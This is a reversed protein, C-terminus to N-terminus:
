LRLLSRTVTVGIGTGIAYGIVGWLTAAVTFSVLGLQGCFAAATAPGGIAANSAVLVHDLRLSPCFTHRLFLSGMFVVLSHVILALMSFLLCAPGSSLAQGLNASIGIAAFLLQFAWSSLRKAVAQMDKWLPLNSLPVRILSTLVCIIGCATGPIISALKAEMHNSVQVITLAIIVLLASASLTRRPEELVISTGQIAKFQGGLPNEQPNKDDDKWFLQNLKRWKICSSLAVLYIAMILLDVAAMSSLLSADGGLIKATAFFNVSGGIYSACLCGAAIAASPIKAQFITFSYICGLISGISGILFSYGVLRIYKINNHTNTYIKSNTTTYSQSDDGILMLVLSAPLFMSWCLDYLGHNTPVLHLNSAIAASVLTVLIGINPIIKNAMLGLRSSVLLGSAASVTTYPLM